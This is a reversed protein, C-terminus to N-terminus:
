TFFCTATWETFGPGRQSSKKLGNMKVSPNVAEGSQFPKEFNPLDNCLLSDNLATTKCYDSKDPQTEHLLNNPFWIATFM